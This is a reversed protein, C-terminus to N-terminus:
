HNCEEDTFRKNSLLSAFGRQSFSTTPWLWVCVCVGIRNKIAKGVMECIYVGFCRRVSKLQVIFLLPYPWCCLHFASYQLQKWHILGFLFPTQLPITVFPCFMWKCAVVVDVVVDGNRAWEIATGNIEEAFWESGNNEKARM